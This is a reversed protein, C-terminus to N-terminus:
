DVPGLNPTWKLKGPNGARIMAKLKTETAPILSIVNFEALSSIAMKWITFLIALKLKGYDVTTDVFLNDHTNPTEHHQELYLMFYQEAASFSGDCTYCLIDADIFGRSKTGQHGDDRIFELPSGSGRARRFSGLPIIHAGMLKTNCGCLRCTPM